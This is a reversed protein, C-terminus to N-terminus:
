KNQYKAKLFDSWFLFEKIRAAILKDFIILRLDSRLFKFNELWKLLPNM